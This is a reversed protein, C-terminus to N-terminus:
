FNFEEEFIRTALATDVPSDFNDYIDSDDTRGWFPSVTGKRANVVWIQTNRGQFASTRDRKFSIFPAPTKETPVVLVRDEKEAMDGAYEPAFVISPLLIVSLSKNNRTATLRRTGLETGSPTEQRVEYGSRLFFATVVHQVSDANDLAKIRAQRRFAEELEDSLFQHTARHYFVEGLYNKRGNLVPSYASIPEVIVSTMLAKELNEGLATELAQREDDCLKAVEVSVVLSIEDQSFAKHRSLVANLRGFMDDLERLQALETAM